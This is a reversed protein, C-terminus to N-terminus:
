QSVGGGSLEDTDEPDSPLGNNELGRVALAAIHVLTQKDGNGAAVMRIFRLEEAVSFPASCDRDQKARERGIAAFVHSQKVPM